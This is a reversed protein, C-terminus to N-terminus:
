LPQLALKNGKKRRTKNRGVWGAGKLLTPDIARNGELKKEGNQQKDTQDQKRPGSVIGNELRGGQGVFSWTRIRHGLHVSSSKGGKEGDGEGIWGVQRTFLRERPRPDGVVGEGIDALPGTSGPVGRGGGKGDGSRIVGPKLLTWFQSPAATPPVGKRLSEMSGRKQSPKMPNRGGPTRTKPAFGLEIKNQSNCPRGAESSGEEGEQEILFWFLERYEGKKIRVDQYMGGLTQQGLAKERKGSCFLGFKRGAGRAAGTLSGHGKGNRRSSRKGGGMKQVL